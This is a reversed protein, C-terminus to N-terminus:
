MQATYKRWLRRHASRRLGSDICIHIRPGTAGLSALMRSRGMVALYPM